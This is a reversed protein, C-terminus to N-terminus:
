KELSFDGCYWNGSDKDSYLVDIFQATSFSETLVFEAVGNTIQVWQRQGVDQQSTYSELALSFGIWAEEFNASVTKPVM